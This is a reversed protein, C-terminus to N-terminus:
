SETEFILRRWDEAEDRPATEKTYLGHLYQADCLAARAHWGARYANAMVVIVSALFSNPDDQERANSIAMAEVAAHALLKPSAYILRAIHDHELEHWESLEATEPDFASEIQESFQAELVEATLCPVSSYTTSM